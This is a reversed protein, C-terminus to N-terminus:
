NDHIEESCVSQDHIRKARSHRLHRRLGAIRKTVKRTCARNMEFTQRVGSIRSDAKIKEETSTRGVDEVGREVEVGRGVVVTQGIDLKSPVEKTSLVRKKFKQRTARQYKTLISKLQRNNNVTYFNGALRLSTRNLTEPSVRQRLVIDDNALESSSRGADFNPM